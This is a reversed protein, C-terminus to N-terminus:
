YGGSDPHGYLAYDLPCVPDKIHNWSGNAPWQHRPLRVWTLINSRLLSQTYAAEADAQQGAYGAVLSSCDVAKTSEITAPCSGLDEFM